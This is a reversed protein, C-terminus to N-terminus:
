WVRLIEGEPLMVRLGFTFVKWNLGISLVTITLHKIILNLSFGGL